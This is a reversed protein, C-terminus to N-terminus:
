SHLAFGACMVKGDPGGALLVRGWALLEVACSHQRLVTLGGATVDYRCVLWMYLSLM